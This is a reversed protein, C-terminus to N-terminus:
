LGDEFPFYHLYWSAFRKRLNGEEGESTMFTTNAIRSPSQLSLVSCATGVVQTRQFSPVHLRFLWIPTVDGSSVLQPSLLQWIRRQKPSKMLFSIFFFFFWSKVWVEGQTLGEFLTVAWIFELARIEIVLSKDCCIHHGIPGQWCAVLDVLEMLRREPLEWWLFVQM